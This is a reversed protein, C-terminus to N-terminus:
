WGGIRVLPLLDARLAGVEIVEAEKLQSSPAKMKRCADDLQQPLQTGTCADSWSRQTLAEAFLLPSLDDDGFGQRYGDTGGRQNAATSVKALEAGVEHVRRM